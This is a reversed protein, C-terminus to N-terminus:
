SALPTFFRGLFCRYRWARFQRKYLWCGIFIPTGRQPRRGLFRCREARALSLVRGMPHSKDAMRESAPLLRADVFCNRAQWKSKLRRGFEALHDDLSKATQHKEFDYGVAPIELLPTIKDKVAPTLRSLAQYEGLKWKLIPVYHLQNFMLGFGFRQSREDQVLFEIQYVICRSKYSKEVSVHIEM